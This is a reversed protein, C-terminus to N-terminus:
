GEVDEMSGDSYEVEYYETGDERTRPTRSVEYVQATTPEEKLSVETETKTTNKPKNRKYYEKTINEKSVKVEGRNDIIDGRANMPLNGVARVTENRAALSGMDISKGRSTKVTKM